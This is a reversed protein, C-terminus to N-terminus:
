FRDDPFIASAFDHFVTIGLGIYGYSQGFFKATEANYLSPIEGLFQNSFITGHISLALWQEPIYSLRGILVDNSNFNKTARKSEDSRNVQVRKYDASISITPTIQFGGGFGVVYNDSSYHSAALSEQFNDLLDISLNSSLDLGLESRVNTRSYEAFGRINWREWLTKSAFLAVGFSDDEIGGFTLTTPPTLPINPISVGVVRGQFSTFTDSINEGRNGRYFAGMSVTPYWSREILLRQKLMVDHSTYEIDGTSLGADIERLEGKYSFQLGDWLGFHFIGQLGHYDGRTGSNDGPHSSAKLNFVDVTNNVTRYFINSELQGKSLVYATPIDMHLPIGVPPDDLFEAFVPAASLFFFWLAAFLTCTNKILFM